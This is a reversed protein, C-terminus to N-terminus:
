TSETLVQGNPTDTVTYGRSALEDRIRDSTAFDKAARAAAREDLLAQLDEPVDTAAPV